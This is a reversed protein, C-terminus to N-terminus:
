RVYLHVENTQATASTMTSLSVRDPSLGMSTLSRMVKDASRRAKSTNLSVQAPTGAAPAVAVLDFAANPRRDLTASVAAFLAQEYDPNERDFRIVVLPRGTAIGSGPAM